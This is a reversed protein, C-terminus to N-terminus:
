YKGVRCKVLRLGRVARIGFGLEVREQQRPDITDGAAHDIRRQRCCEPLFTGV